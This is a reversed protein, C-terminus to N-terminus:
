GASAYAAVTMVALARAATLQARAGIIKAAL